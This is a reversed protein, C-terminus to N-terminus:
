AAEKVPKEIHGIVPDDKHLAIINMGFPFIQYDLKKLMDSLDIQNVKVIEVSLIPRCRAITERAGRIAELEMGEIDFKIFDVRNKGLSDITLCRVMSTPKDYDIPQGINETGIWQKLEFSGFSSNVAYDPESIWLPECNDTVAAWLARANVCNQLALNGALAYFVREQAEIALVSGWERMLRSFEVTHVGINAGCDIVFVGDGAYQRKLQLFGKITAIEGPDYAGKEMIQAGVGYVNGNFGENYDVRNVILPGHDSSMLVWAITM